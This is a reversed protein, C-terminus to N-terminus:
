SPPQKALCQQHAVSKIAIDALKQLHARRKEVAAVAREAQADKISEVEAEIRPNFLWYRPADKLIITELEARRLAMDYRSCDIELTSREAARLKQIKEHSCKHHVYIEVLLDKGKVTLILDPKLSGDYQEVRVDEVDIWRGYFAVREEGNVSAIGYPI